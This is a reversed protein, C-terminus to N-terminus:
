CVEYKSKLWTMKGLWYMQGPVYRRRFVDFLEKGSNRMVQYGPLSFFRFNELTWTVDCNRTHCLNFFVSVGQILWIILLLAKIVKAYYTQKVMLLVAVISPDTTRYLRVCINVKRYIDQRLLRLLLVLSTVQWTNFDRMRLYNILM